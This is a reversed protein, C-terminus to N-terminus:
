KKWEKRKTIAFSGDYALSQEQFDKDLGSKTRGESDFIVGKGRDPTLPFPLTNTYFQFLDENRCIKQLWHRGFSVHSIEDLYVIGMIRATEQDDIELFGGNERIVSLQILSKIKEEDNDVCTVRNGMESFCAGTVLGVYGTGIIAIKM